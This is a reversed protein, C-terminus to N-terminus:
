SARLRIKSGKKVVFRCPSPIPIPSSMLLLITWLWPPLMSKSLPSPRVTKM